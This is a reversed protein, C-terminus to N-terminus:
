IVKVEKWAKEVAKEELSGAGFENRAAVICANAADVFQAERNGLLEKSLAVYWVRGAKVCAKGAMETAALFFAHNPIGSNIHVGGNDDWPQLERYQDMTAPQPDNGLVPHNLYATGPAKMSRLAYDDGKLVKAGILWDGDKADQGLVRQKCCTGFVDSFSENLAGSQFWYRLNACYQTVGHTLEHAIVDLDITFRDFLEGDGDGYVMQNGNWFANNYKEGYHVTSKIIMGRSDISNRKYCEWYMDWTYGAGDYAEDVALDGTSGEGEARVLKGPLIEKNAADYVERVKALSHAELGPTLSELEARPTDSIMQRHMRLHNSQKLTKLAAERMRESGKEVMKELMYPPIVCLIPDHVRCM